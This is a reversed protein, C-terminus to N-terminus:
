CRLSSELVRLRLHVSGGCRQAHQCLKAAYLTHLMPHTHPAQAVCTPWAPLVLATGSGSWTPVGRHTDHHGHHHQMFCGACMNAAIDHCQSQAVSKLQCSCCRAHQLMVVRLTHCGITTSVLGRCSLEPSASWGTNVKMAVKGCFDSGSERVHCLVQAHGAHSCSQSKQGSQSDQCESRAHPSTTQVLEQHCANLLLNAQLYM